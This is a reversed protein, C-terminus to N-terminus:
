DFMTGPDLDSPSKWDIGYESKLIKKQVRWVVHCFGLGFYKYHLEDLALKECTTDLKFEKCIAKVIKPELDHWIEQVRKEVIVKDYKRPMNDM